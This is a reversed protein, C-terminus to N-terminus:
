RWKKNKHETSNCRALDRLLPVV